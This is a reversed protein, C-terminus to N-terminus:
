NTQVSQWFFFFFVGSASKIYQPADPGCVEELSPEAILRTSLIIQSETSSYDDSLLHYSMM